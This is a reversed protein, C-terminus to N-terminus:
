VTAVSAGGRRQDRRLKDRQGDVQESAKGRRPRVDSWEGRDGWITAGQKSGLGGM